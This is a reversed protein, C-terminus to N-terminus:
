RPSRLGALGDPFTGYLRRLGEGLEGAELRAGSRSDFSGTVTWPELRSVTRGDVRLVQGTLWGSEHSALWAVVPSSNGPDLTDM